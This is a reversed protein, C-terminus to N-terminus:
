SATEFIFSRCTCAKLSVAYEVLKIETEFETYLTEPLPRRTIPHLGDTVIAELADRTPLCHEMRIGDTAEIFVITDRPGSSTNTLLSSFDQCERLRDEIMMRNYAQSYGDTCNRDDLDTDLPHRFFEPCVERSVERFAERLAAYEIQHRDILETREELSLKQNAYVEPFFEEPSLRHLHPLFEELKANFVMSYYGSFTVQSLHLAVRVVREAYEKGKLNQSLTNEIEVARREDKRIAQKLLELGAIRLEKEDM